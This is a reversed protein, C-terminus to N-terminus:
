LVTDKAQTQMKGYALTSSLSAYSKGEETGHGAWNCIGGAIYLCMTTCDFLGYIILFGSFLLLFFFFMLLASFMAFRRDRHCCSGSHVWFKRTGDVCLLLWMCGYWVWRGQQAVVCVFLICLEYPSPCHDITPQRSPM